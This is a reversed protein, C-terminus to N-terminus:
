IVNVQMEKTGSDRADVIAISMNDSAVLVRM